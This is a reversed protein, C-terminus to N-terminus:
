AQAARPLRKHPGGRPGSTAFVGAFIMSPWTWM